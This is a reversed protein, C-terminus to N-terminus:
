RGLIGAVIRDAEAKTFRADVVASSSIVGRVTPCSVVEGDILIALPKGSRDRTATEMKRAGDATFTVILSYSDETSNRQASVKAIDGNSVVADQHLYVTRRSDTVVVPRLGNGPAEEAMRVEFRVAAIVDVASRSLLSVAGAALAAGALCVAGLLPLMDRRPPLSRSQAASEVVAERARRRAEASWEGEDALPDAQRLLERFTSM